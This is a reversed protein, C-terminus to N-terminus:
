LASTTLSKVSIVRCRPYKIGQLICIVGYCVHFLVCTCNIITVVVTIPSYYKEGKETEWIAPLILAAISELASIVRLSRVTYHSIFKDYECLFSRYFPAIDITQGSLVSM